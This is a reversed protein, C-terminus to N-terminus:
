GDLRDDLAPQRHLRRVSLRRCADSLSRRLGAAASDEAAADAGDRRRAQGGGRSRRSSGAAHQHTDIGYRVRLGRSRAAEFSVDVDRRVDLLLAEGTEESGILYSAHGLSELYFQQFIM